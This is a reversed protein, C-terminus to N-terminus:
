PDEFVNGLLLTYGEQRAVLEAGRIIEPFFPNTIDPVVVGITQSQGIKLGKAFANPRYQLAKAAALVRARTESGAGGRDNLVRSVTVQSGGAARAVDAITPKPPRPRAMTSM